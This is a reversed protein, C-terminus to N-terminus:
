SGFNKPYYLRWEKSYEIEEMAHDLYFDYNFDFGRLLEIQTNEYNGAKQLYFGIAQHYPYIYDLIKLQGALKNISVIDAAKKFASLVEYIGGSYIPHVTIDILTREVDTVLTKDGNKSTIIIVGLNDTFTRSLFNIRSNQYKMVNSSIKYPKNFAADIEDQSLLKKVIPEEPQEYTCYINRPIRDTLGHLFLATYHSLYANKKLSSVIRFISVNGWTFRLISKPIFLFTHLELQTYTVLLKTFDEATLSIPLQWIKRHNDLIISLDNITYVNDGKSEFYKVIDSKATQFQKKTYKM